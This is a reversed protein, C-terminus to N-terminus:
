LAGSFRLTQKILRYQTIRELPKEFGRNIIQQVTTPCLRFIIPPAACQYVPKM